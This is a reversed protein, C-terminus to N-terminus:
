IIFVNVLLDVIYGFTIFPVFPIMVKKEKREEKSLNRRKIAFIISAVVFPIYAIILIEFCYKLTISAGLASMLLIDAGGGGCFIAIFFMIMFMVALGLGASILYNKDFGLISINIIVSVVGTTPYIFVPIKRTKIDLYSTIGLIILWIIAVILQNIQM